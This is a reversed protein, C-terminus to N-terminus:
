LCYVIHYHFSSNSYSFHSFPAVKSFIYSKRFYMNLCLFVFHIQLHLQSLFIFISFPSPKAVSFSEYLVSMWCSTIIKFAVLLIAGSFLHYRNTSIYQTGSTKSMSTSYSIGKEKKRKRTMGQRHNASDMTSFWHEKCPVLNYIRKRKEAATDTERGYVQILLFPVYFM